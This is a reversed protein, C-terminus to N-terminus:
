LHILKSGVTLSVVELLLGDHAPGGDQQAGPSGLRGGAGAEPTDMPAAAGGPGDLPRPLGRDLDGTFIAVDSRRSACLLCRPSFELRLELDMVSVLSAMSAFCFVLSSFQSISIALDMVSM